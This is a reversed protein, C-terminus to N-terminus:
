LWEAAGTEGALDTVRAMVEDKGLHEKAWPSFVKIKVVTERNEIITGVPLFSVQRRFLHLHKEKPDFYVYNNLM